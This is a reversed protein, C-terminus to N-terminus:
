GFGQGQTPLPYTQPGKFSKSFVDFLESLDIEISEVNSYNSKLWEIHKNARDLQSSNQHIPLSVVFTKRGTKACLTSTLASDVGGSVGVVLSEINSDECYQDIWNSIRSSFDKYDSIVKM